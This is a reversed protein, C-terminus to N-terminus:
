FRMPPASISLHIIIETYDRTMQFTLLAYPTIRLFSGHIRINRMFQLARHTPRLRSLHMPSTDHMPGTDPLFSICSICFTSIACVFSFVKFFVPFLPQSKQSSKINYYEGQAVPCFKNLTM